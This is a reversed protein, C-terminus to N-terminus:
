GGAAQLRRFLREVESTNLQGVKVYRVKGQQDIIYSTPIPAIAYAGGVEGSEDLVIPYSVGYLSAFRRVDDASRNLNREANFLDVGVIVLGEDQLRQYATQLAPTEEKCPECWTGWFNLLVVKGKFDALSVPRGQLDNLTFAHADYPEVETIQPLSANASGRGAALWVGSLVLLGVLVGLAGFLFERGSIRTKEGPAFGQELDYAQRSDPDSLVQVARELEAAEAPDPASTQQVRRDYASLVEATSAGPAIGLLTYYNNTMKANDM